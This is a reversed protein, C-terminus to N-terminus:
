APEQTGPDPTPAAAVSAHGIGISKCALWIMLGVVALATIAGGCIVLGLALAAYDSMEPEYGISGYLSDALGASVLLALGIVFGWITLARLARIYPDM